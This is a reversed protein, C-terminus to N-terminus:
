WASFLDGHSGVILWTFCKVDGGGVHIHNELKTDGFCGREM